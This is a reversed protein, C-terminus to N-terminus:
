LNNLCVCARAKSWCAPNLSFTNVVQVARVGNGYHQDVFSKDAQAQTNTPVWLKDGRSENALGPFGLGGALLICLFFTCVSACPRCSVVRSASSVTNHVCVCERERRKCQILRFRFVFCTRREPRLSRGIFHSLSGDRRTARALSVLRARQTRLLRLPIPLTLAYNM